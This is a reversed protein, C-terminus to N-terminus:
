RALRSKVDQGDREHLFAESDEVTVTVSLTGGCGPCRLVVDSTDDERDVHGVEFEQGCAEHEIVFQLLRDAPENSM